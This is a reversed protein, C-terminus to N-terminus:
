LFTHDLAFYHLPTNSEHSFQLYKFLAVPPFEFDVANKVSILRESMYEM